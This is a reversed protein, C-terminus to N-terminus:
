TTRVHFGRVAPVRVLAWRDEWGKRSTVFKLAEEFTGIALRSEGFRQPEGTVRDLVMCIESDVFQYVNGAGDTARAYETM